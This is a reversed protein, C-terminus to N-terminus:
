RRWFNLSSNKQFFQFSRSWMSLWKFTVALCWNEDSLFPAVVNPRFEIRGFALPHPALALALALHNKCNLASFKPLMKTFSTSLWLVWYFVSKKTFNPLNTSKKPYFYTFLPAKHFNLLKEYTLYFHETSIKSRINNPPKINPPIDYRQDFHNVAFISEKLPMWVLTNQM